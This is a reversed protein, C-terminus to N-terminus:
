HRHAVGIIATFFIIVTLFLIRGNKALRLAAINTIDVKQNSNKQKTEKQQSGCSCLDLKGQLLALQDKLSQNESKLGENEKKLVTIATHANKVALAMRELTSQAETM